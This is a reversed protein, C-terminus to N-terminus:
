SSKWKKEGKNLPEWHKHLKLLPRPDLQMQESVEIHDILWNNCFPCIANKWPNIPAFIAIRCTPCYADLIDGAWYAMMDERWLTNTNLSPVRM